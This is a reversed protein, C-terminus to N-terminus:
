RVGASTEHANSKFESYSNIHGGVKTKITETFKGVLLSGATHESYDDYSVSLGKHGYGLNVDGDTYEKYAFSGYAENRTSDTTSDIRLNTHTNGWSNISENRVYTEGAFAPAAVISAAIALGLVKINKM